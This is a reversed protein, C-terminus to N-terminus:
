AHNRSWNRVTARLIRVFYRLDEYIGRGQTDKKVAKNPWFATALQEM